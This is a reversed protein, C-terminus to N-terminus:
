RGEALFIDRLQEVESRMNKWGRAFDVRYRALHEPIDCYDDDEGVGDKSLWVTVFSIGRAELWNVSADFESLKRVGCIVGIENQAISDVARSFVNSSDISNMILGINELYSRVSEKHQRDVIADGSLREYEDLICQSTEAFGAGLEKALRKGFTTKGVGNKGLVMVVMKM